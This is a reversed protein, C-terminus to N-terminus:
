GPYQGHHVLQNPIRGMGSKPAEQLKGLLNPLLNESWYGNLIRVFQRNRDSLPQRIVIRPTMISSRTVVVSATIAESGICNDNIKLLYPPKLISAYSLSTFSTSSAESSTFLASPPLLAAPVRTRLAMCSMLLAECSTLTETRSARPSPQDLRPMVLAGSLRYSVCVRAETADDTGAKKPSIVLRRLILIRDGWM